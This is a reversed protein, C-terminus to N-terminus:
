RDRADDGAPDLDHMGCRRAVVHQQGDEPWTLNDTIEFRELGRGGMPTCRNDCEVGDGQMRHGRLLVEGEQM